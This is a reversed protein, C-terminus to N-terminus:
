YTFANHKRYENPTMGTQHKFIDCFYSPSSFSLFEAIDSISYDSYRLMNCSTEIRKETIYDVLTKGTEAHFLRSLYSASLGVHEAVQSLRIKENLHMYVYDFCQVVTRSYEKRKLAAMRETFDYVIQQHLTHVESITTAADVKQIYLDSLNYATEQEMGGEVCFRTIFAVTIILHYKLNRLKDESLVGFGKGGLPVSTKKVGELDGNKVYDYFTLESAMPAHGLANERRYFELYALKKDIEKM